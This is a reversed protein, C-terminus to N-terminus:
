TVLAKQGHYLGNRLWCNGILNGGANEERGEFEEIEAIYEGPFIMGSTKKKM